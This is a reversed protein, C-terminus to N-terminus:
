RLKGNVWEIFETTFDSEQPDQTEQVWLANVTPNGIQHVIYNEWSAGPIADPFSEIQDTQYLAECFAIVCFLYHKQRSSLRNVDIQQTYIDDLDPHEVILEKLHLYKDLWMVYMSQRTTRTNQRFQYGAYILGCVAAVSSVVAAWTAVTVGDM